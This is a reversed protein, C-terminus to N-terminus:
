AVAESPAPQAARTRRMLRVAEDIEEPDLVYAARCVKNGMHASLHESVAYSRWAEIEDDRADSLKQARLALLRRALEAEHNKSLGITDSLWQVLSREQDTLRDTM